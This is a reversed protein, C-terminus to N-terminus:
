SAARANADLADLAARGLETMQLARRVSPVRVGWEAAVTQPTHGGAALVAAEYARVSCRVKLRGQVARAARETRRYARMQDMQTETPRLHEPKGSYIWRDYARRGEAAEGPTWGPRGVGSMGHQKAARAARSRALWPMRDWVTVPISDPREPVLESVPTPTTV